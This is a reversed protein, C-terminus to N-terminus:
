NKGPTESNVWRLLATRQSKWEASYLESLTAAKLSIQFINSFDLPTIHDPDYLLGNEGDIIYENMTPHGPAVVVIGMAMAELFPMGIGEYLRPAFFVNSGSLTKLYDEKKDFWQSVTINYNRMEEHTPLVAKYWMPDIALHLHFSTFPAGEILKRIHQWTIDNNRQWFFGHLEHTEHDMKPEQFHSQAPFYRFYRSELGIKNLRDQFTKSFAIWRFDKYQLFLRDPINHSDDYMPVIITNNCGIKKLNEPKHYYFGHWVVLIDFNRSKLAEPAPFLGGNWQNDWFVVVSGICRLLDIFFSSSNTKQHYSFDIMGIKLGTEKGTYTFYSAPIDQVTFTLIRFLRIIRAFILKLRYTRLLKIQNRLINMM